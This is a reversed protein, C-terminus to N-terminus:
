SPGEVVVTEAHHLLRDLVASAIISDNNFVSSWQKFPKNTTLAISGREFDNPDTRPDARVIACAPAQPINGGHWPRQADFALRLGAIIWRRSPNQRRM